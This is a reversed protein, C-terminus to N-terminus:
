GAARGRVRPLEARRGGGGRGRWGPTGRASEASVDGCGPARRWQLQRSRSRGESRGSPPPCARAARGPAHSAVPGAPQPSARCRHRGVTGGPVGLLRRAAARGGAAGKGRDRGRGRGPRRRLSSAGGGRWWAGSSRASRGQRRGRAERSFWPQGTCSNHRGCANVRLYAAFRLAPGAAEGGAPPPNGRCAPAQMQGPLPKKEGERSRQLKM